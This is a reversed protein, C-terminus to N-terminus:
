SLIIYINLIKVYLFFARVQIKVAVVDYLTIGENTGSGKM